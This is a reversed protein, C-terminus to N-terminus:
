ARDNQKVKGEKLGGYKERLLKAYYESGM